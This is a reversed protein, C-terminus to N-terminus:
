PKWPVHVLSQALEVILKAQDIDYYFDQVGADRLRRAICCKRLGHCVLRM